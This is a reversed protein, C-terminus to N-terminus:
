GGERGITAAARDLEQGFRLFVYEWCFDAFKEMDGELRGSAKDIAVALGGGKMSLNCGYLRDFNDVLESTEICEMLCDYFSVGHRVAMLRLGLPIERDTMETM